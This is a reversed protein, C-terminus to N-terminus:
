KCLCLPYRETSSLRIAKSPELAPCEGSCKELAIRTLKELYDEEKKNIIVMISKNMALSKKMAVMDRFM